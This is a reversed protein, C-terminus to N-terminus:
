ITKSKEYSQITHPRCKSTLCVPDICTKCIENNVVALNEELKIGGNPCTKVCIGCGICGVTCVKSTRAGKDHNRCKVVSKTYEPVLLLVRRPCIGICIGCGVCKIEDIIPLGKDSMKIADYPCKKECTGYGLCGYECAKDGHYVMNASECDEIGDYRYKMVCNNMDKSAGCYLHAKLKSVAKAEKGTLRAVTRAVLEGGPTCLNAPVAPDLVVNEAYQRCGPYGCAGCQGKPLEEDVEDILPNTEVSFKKAILAIILGFVIGIGALILVLVTSSKLLEIHEM